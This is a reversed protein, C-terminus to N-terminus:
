SARMHVIPLIQPYPAMYCTVSSLRPPPLREYRHFNNTLRDYRTGFRVFRM